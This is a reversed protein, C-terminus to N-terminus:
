GTGLEGKLQAEAEYWNPQDQGPVCGGRIWIARAREAIQEHSPEASSPRLPVVKSTSLTASSGSLAAMQVVGPGPDPDARLPETIGLGAARNMKQGMDRSNDKRNKKM